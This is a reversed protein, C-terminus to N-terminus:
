VGVKIIERAEVGDIIRAGPIMNEAGVRHEFHFEAIVVRLIRALVVIALDRARVEEVLGTDLKILPIYKRVRNRSQRRDALEPGATAAICSIVLDVLPYAVIRPHHPPM